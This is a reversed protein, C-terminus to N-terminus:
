NTAAELQCLQLIGDESLRMLGALAANRRRARTGADQGAACYRDIVQEVTAEGDCLALLEAARDPLQFVQIPRNRFVAFAVVSRQSAAPRVRGGNRLSNLLAGTDFAFSRIVMNHATKLRDQARVTVAAPPTDASPQKLESLAREYELVARLYGADPWRGGDLAEAVFSLMHGAFVNSCYYRLNREPYMQEDGRRARAHWDVWEDLVQLVDSTAELLAIPLWRFWLTMGLLFDHVDRLYRRPLLTPLSYSHPFIGPHEQILRLDNPDERWGQYSMDSYIHDFLLKDSYEREIPTGSLPALLSMQPEAHDLRTAQLFFHATARLDEKTEGPFGTILSVATKMRNDTAARIAEWARQLDLGKKITLQLRPSGTEVGFFIGSCGSQAMLTLLERDVRDTRASCSWQFKEGSRILAEAFEVVRDRNVTYIDHVLTFATVGFREHLEKMQALVCSPSKLRFKRRFFENTSCFTCGYPCGRGIELHVSGRKRINADLEFAPLPLADLDSILPANVSRLVSGNRRYTIGELDVMDPAGRSTEIADLLAPFTWDAEGRVVIDVWEFAELTQVDVATAQPGGLVIQAEPHLRKAERALRITLPYSGCISSFGFLPAEVHALAAVFSAFLDDPTVQGGASSLTDLTIGDLDVVTASHGHAAASAALCLVGLQTVRPAHAALTVESDGFDSITPATVLCVQV